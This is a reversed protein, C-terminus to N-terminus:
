CRHTKQWIVQMIECPVYGWNEIKVNIIDKRLYNRHNKRFRIESYDLRERYRKASNMSASVSKFAESESGQASAMVSATSMMMVAAAAGAFVKTFRKTRDTRRMTIVEQITKNKEPAKQETERETILTYWVLSSLKKVFIPRQRYNKLFTKIRQKICFEQIYKHLIM